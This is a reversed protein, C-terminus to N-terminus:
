GPAVLLMGYGYARHRGLGRSLLDSFLDPDRVELVGKITADPGSFRPGRHKRRTQQLTFSSMVMSEPVVETGGQQKMLGAIWACYAEARTIGEENRYVDREIQRGTKGSRRTPRVRVMFRLRAGKTWREPTATTAILDPPMVAALAMSQESRAAERLEEQDLTTYALLTAEESEDGATQQLHFPKPAHERGFTEYVLSHLKRDHERVRIQAAWRNLRRPYVTASMLRIARM